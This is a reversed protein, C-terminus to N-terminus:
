SPKLAVSLDIEVFTDIESVGFLEPKIIDSEMGFPFQDTVM